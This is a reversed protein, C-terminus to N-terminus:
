VQTLPTEFFARLNLVEQLLSVNNTEPVQCLIRPLHKSAKEGKTKDLAMTLGLLQADKPLPLGVQTHKNQILFSM